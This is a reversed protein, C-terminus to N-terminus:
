KLDKMSLIVLDGKQYKDREKRKRDIYWKMKEQTKKLAVKAKEQIEKIKEIFKGAVKYRERWRGEFRMRLDQRCNAGFSLVKTVSYIKNNYAFKAIGLWELWQEQRYNIFMYLYQELEQNVRETQRDMQPYYAISLKTKIELMRNLKKMVGAAFQPRRDL